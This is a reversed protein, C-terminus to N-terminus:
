ELHLWAAKKAKNSMHSDVHRYSIGARKYLDRLWCPSITIGYKEKLRHSREQLTLTSSAQLEAHNMMVAKDQYTYRSQKGNTARFDEYLRDYHNFKFVATSVSSVKCGLASAIDTARWKLRRLELIRFKVFKRLM